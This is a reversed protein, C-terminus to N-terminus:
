TPIFRPGYHDCYVFGKTWRTHKQPTYGFAKSEPNGIYGANAEFIVRDGINRFYVGGLHSHGCIVNKMMHDRHFGPKTSYGHIIAVDGIILEHRPDMITTVNEFKFYKEISFFIEGEPYSELIRKIPRIDHNGLIQYKKADPVIKQMTAWFNSAMKFALEIEDSPNYVNLSRPFKSQAFMDYLDGVQIIHKPQYSQAFQYVVSLSNECVFPFHTDGVALITETGCLKSEKISVNALHDEISKNFISKIADKKNPTKIGASQLLVTYSGFFLVLDHRSYKGLSVYEDRTPIRGLEQAVRKLDAVIDHRDM